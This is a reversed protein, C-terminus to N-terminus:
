EGYYNKISAYINQIENITEVLDPVSEIQGTSNAVRALQNLNNGVRSLERVMGIAITPDKPLQGTRILSRVVDASSRHQAKAMQELYEMDTRTMRVLFCCDYKKRM